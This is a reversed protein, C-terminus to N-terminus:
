QFSHWKQKGYHITSLSFNWWHLAKITWQHSSTLYFVSGNEWILSFVYGFLFTFKFPGFWNKSSSNALTTKDKSWKRSNSGVMDVDWFVCWWNRFIIRMQSLFILLKSYSYASHSVCHACSGISSLLSIWLGNCNRTRMGWVQLLLILVITQYYYVFDNDIDM